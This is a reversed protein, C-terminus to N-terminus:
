VVFGVVTCFCVCACVQIIQTKNLAWVKDLLFKSQGLSSLTIKHSGVLSFNSSRRPDLTSSAGATFLFWWWLNSLLLCVDM